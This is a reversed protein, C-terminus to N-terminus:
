PELSPGPMGQVRRAESAPIDPLFDFGARDELWDLPRIFDKLSYNQRPKENPLVYATAQLTGTADNHVVVKYLHTPVAVNSGIVVYPIWGDATATVEEQPDYLLSGTIIWTDGGYISRNRALSELKRWAGSNFPGHQPSINSLYFSEALLKESWAFNEAPANHGRAYGSFRYDRLTAQPGSLQPDELFRDKRKFDGDLRGATVRECVWLPVKHTSSYLLAYGDRVVYETPGHDWSAQMTPIGLPCLHQVQEEQDITLDASQSVIFASSHARALVVRKGGSWQCGAALLVAAALIARAGISFGSSLLRSQNSLETM